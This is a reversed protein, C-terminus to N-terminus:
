DNMLFACFPMCISLMPNEPLGTKVMEFERISFMASFQM